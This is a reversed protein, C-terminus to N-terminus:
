FYWAVVRAVEGHSHLPLAVMGAYRAAGAPNQEAVPAGTALARGVPGQWAALKRDTDWLPGEVDCLGDALTATAPRGGEARHRGLARLAPRHADRARLPADPRLRAGAPTAVPVGLGTTLGAARASASRVFGASSGLDRMLIPARRGSAARAPGPWAPVLDAQFGRPLRHAAGYFGADLSM